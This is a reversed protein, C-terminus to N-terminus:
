RLARLGSSSVAYSPEIDGLRHRFSLETQAPSRSSIIALRSSCTMRLHMGSVPCGWRSPEEGQEYARLLGM